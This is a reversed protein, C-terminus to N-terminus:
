PCPGCGPIAVIVRTETGTCLGLLDVATQTSVVGPTFRAALCCALARFITEADRMVLNAAAAVQTCSPPHGHRDLGPNCRLAQVVYQAAWWPSACSQDSEDAQPFVASPFGTEYWVMIQGDCCDDWAVRGPAVCHRGPAPLGAGTVAGVACDLLMLAVDHM